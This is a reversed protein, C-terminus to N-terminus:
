IREDPNHNLYNSLEKSKRILEKKIGSQVFSDFYLLKSLLNIRLVLNEGWYKESLFKYISCSDNNYFFTNNKEFALLYVASYFEMEETKTTM